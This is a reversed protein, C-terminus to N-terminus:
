NIKNDKLCFLINLDRDDQSSREQYGSSCDYIDFIPQQSELYPIFLHFEVQKVYHLVFEFGIFAKPNVYNILLKLFFKMLGM